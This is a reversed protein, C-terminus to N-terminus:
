YILKMARGPGGGIKPGNMLECKPCPERRRSRVHFLKARDRPLERRLHVAAVPRCALKAAHSNNIDREM